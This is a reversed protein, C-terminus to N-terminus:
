EDSDALLMLLLLRKNRDKRETDHYKESISKGLLKHLKVKDDQLYNDVPKLNKLLQQIALAEEADELDQLKKRRKRWVDAKDVEVAAGGYQKPNLLLLLSM